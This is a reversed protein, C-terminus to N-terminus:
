RRRRNESLGHKLYHQLPDVGDAAVDANAALYADGDFLGRQKLLRRQRKVQFVAPL